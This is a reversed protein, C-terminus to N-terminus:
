PAELPIGFLQTLTVYLIMYLFFHALSLLLGAGISRDMAGAFINAM